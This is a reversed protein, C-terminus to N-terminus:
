SEWPANLKLRDTVEDLRKAFEAHPVRQTGRPTEQGLHKGTTVSWINESVVWGDFDTRFAVPTEYSFVITLDGYGFVLSHATPSKGRQLSVNM